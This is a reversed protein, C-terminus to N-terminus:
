PTKMLFGSVKCEVPAVQVKAQIHHQELLEELRDRVFCMVPFIDEPRKPCTYFDDMTLTVGLIISKLKPKYQKNWCASELLSLHGHKNCTGKLESLPLVEKFYEPVISATAVDSSANPSFASVKEYTHGNLVYQNPKYVPERYWKQGHEPAFHWSPIKGSNIVECKGQPPM